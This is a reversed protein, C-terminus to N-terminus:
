TAVTHALWSNAIQAFADGADSGRQALLARHYIVAFTPLYPARARVRPDALLAYAHDLVRLAEDRRDLDWLTGGLKFNAFVDDPHQAVWRELIAVNRAHKGGVNGALFGRHELHIDVVRWPHTPWHELVAISICEHVPNRFRIREDNRFLRAVPNPKREGSDYLNDQYVLYAPVETAMAADILVRANATQIFEDTDVSLVWRHTAHDIAFNRAASFDDCWSFELVRCGFERAIAMTDDRSGTDVFVIEDVVQALAALSERVTGASDRGIMVASLGATYDTM